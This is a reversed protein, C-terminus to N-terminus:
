TSSPGTQGVAKQLIPLVEELRFPRKIVAAIGHQEYGRVEADSCMVVPLDWGVSRLGAVLSLGSTGGPGVVSVVVLSFPAAGSPRDPASPATLLRAPATLLRVAEQLSASRVADWGLAALIGALEEGWSEGADVILVRVPPGGASDASSRATSRGPAPGAASRELATRGDELEALRRELRALKEQLTLDEAMFVLSSENGVVDRFPASSLRVRVREGDKRPLWTEDPAARGDGCEGSSMGGPHALGPLAPWPPPRDRVEAAKWGFVREAAKNWLTVRGRSSLVWTPVPSAGILAELDAVADGRCKEALIRSIANSTTTGLTHLGARLSAPIDPYTTTGAVLTAIATGRHLIPVVTLDRAGCLSQLRPDLPGEKSVDSLKDVLEEPVGRQQVLRHEGSAVDIEYVAALDISEVRLAARLAERLAHPINQVTALADQLDSDIRALSETRKQETIDEVVEIFGTPRNDPGMIPHARIRAAFRTGDDRVGVTEAEHPEGTALALRGPCHPCPEERKEFEHYCKKGLLAVIPKAYLRENARNVMVLDFDVSILNMGPETDSAVAEFSDRVTERDREM